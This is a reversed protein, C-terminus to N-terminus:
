AKELQYEAPHGRVYEYVMNWDPFPLEFYESTLKQWHERARREDDKEIKNLQDHREFVLETSLNRILIRLLDRGNAFRYRIDVSM